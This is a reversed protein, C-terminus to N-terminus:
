ARALTPTIYTFPSPTELIKLLTFPLYQQVLVLLDIPLIKTLPVEIQVPRTSSGPSTGALSSYHAPESIRRAERCRFETTVATRFGRVDGEESRGIATTVFAARFRTETVNRESTSRLGGSRFGGAEKADKGGPTSSELAQIVSYRM